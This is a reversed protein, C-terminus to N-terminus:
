GVVTQARLKIPGLGLSVSKITKPSPAHNPSLGNRQKAWSASTIQCHRIM